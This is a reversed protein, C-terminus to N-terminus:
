CVFHLQRHGKRYRRARPVSALERPVISPECNSSVDAAAETLASVAQNRGRRRRLAGCVTLGGLGFLLITSPEPVASFESITLTTNASSSLGISDTVRLVLPFYTGIGLSNIYSASLTPSVGSVDYTGDGDIDWEYSAIVDGGSADPDFSGMGDLMIPNGLTALYPGGANAVPPHNGLTVSVDFSTNASEQPVDNNLVTLTVHFTGFGAYAHTVMAGSDVVGDGFDWNWGVITRSPNTEYSASGDFSVVQNLAAPNPSGSASAVIVAQVSGAGGLLGALAIGLIPRTM